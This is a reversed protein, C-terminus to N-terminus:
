EDRLGELAEYNRRAARNWAELLPKFEEILRYGDHQGARMGRCNCCEGSSDSRSRLRCGCRICKRPNVAM